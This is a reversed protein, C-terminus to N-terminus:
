GLLVFREGEYVEFGVRWTATVLHHETKYQLTVNEVALLPARTDATKDTGPMSGGTQAPYHRSTKAMGLRQSDARIHIRRTSLEHWSVGFLSSQIGRRSIAAITSPALTENVQTAHDAGARASALTTRTALCNPM